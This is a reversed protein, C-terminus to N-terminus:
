LFKLISSIIGLLIIAVVPSFDVPLERTFEFKYLLKRIPEMIPETMMVLFSNFKNDESLPLWSILARVVILISLLEVLYYIATVLLRLLYM